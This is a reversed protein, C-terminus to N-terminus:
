KSDATGRGAGGSGSGRGRGRNNPGGRGGRGGGRGGRFQTRADSPASYSTRNQNKGGRGGSGQSNRRDAAKDEVLKRHARATLDHELMKKCEKVLDESFLRSSNLDCSRLKILADSDLRPCVSKLWVDRRALVMQGINDVECAAWDSVSKELSGCLALGDGAQEILTDLLQETINEVKNSAMNQVNSLIVKLTQLFWDSYNAISLCRRSREEWDVLVSTKIPIIKKEVKKKGDNAKDRESSPFLISDGMDANEKAYSSKWPRDHVKYYTHNFRHVHIFEGVECPKEREKAKFRASGEKGELEKGFKDFLEGIWPRAPLVVKKNEEIKDTGNYSSVMELKEGYSVRFSEGNGDLEDLNPNNVVDQKIAEGHYILADDQIEMEDAKEKAPAQDKDQEKSKEVMMQEKALLLEQEKEQVKAQQRELDLQQQSREQVLRLKDHEMNKLDELLERERAEFQKAMDKQFKEREELLVRQQELQQQHQEQQQRLQQQQQQQQQELQQKHQQQQELQQKQQQQQLYIYNNAM